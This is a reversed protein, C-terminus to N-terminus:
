LSVHPSHPWLSSDLLSFLFSSSRSRILAFLPFALAGPVLISYMHLLVLWFFLLMSIFSCGASLPYRSLTDYVFCLLFYVYMSLLRHLNGKNGSIEGKLSTRLSWRQLENMSCMCQRIALTIRLLVILLPRLSVHRVLLYTLLSIPVSCRLLPHAVLFAPPPKCCFFFLFFRSDTPIYYQVSHVVFWNESLFDM